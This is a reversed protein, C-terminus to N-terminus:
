TCFESEYKEFARRSVFFWLLNDNSVRFRSLSNGDFDYFGLNEIELFCHPWARVAFAYNSFFTDIIRNRRATWPMGRLKLNGERLIMQVTM